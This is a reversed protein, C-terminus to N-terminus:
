SSFSVCLRSTMDAQSSKEDEAGLLWVELRWAGEAVGVVVDGNLVRGDEKM